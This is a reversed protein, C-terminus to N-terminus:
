FIIRDSRIQILLELFYGLLTINIFIINEMLKRDNIRKGIFGWGRRGGIIGGERM